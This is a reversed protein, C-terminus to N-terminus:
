VVLGLTSCDRLEVGEGCNTGLAQVRLVFDLILIQKKYMVCCARFHFLRKAGKAKRVNFIALM